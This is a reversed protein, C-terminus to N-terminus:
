IFGVGPIYKKCIRCPCNDLKWEKIATKFASLSPKQKIEDPVMNWIKPGLYSVTELGNWVTKVSTQRFQSGSRLNYRNNSFSFLESVVTPAINNAVKYMLVALAQINKQHITMANDKQLLEQFNSCHDNYILRLAREHLNNIKNNIAKNHNMWILPCYNFQSLFYSNFVIRRKELDMYQSVRALAHLKSSATKCIKSIHSNLNLQSDITVGLLKEFRSNSISNENINIGLKENKSLLLHCKDPNAKM